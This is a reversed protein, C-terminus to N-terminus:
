RQVALVSVDADTPVQQWNNPDDWVYLAGTSVRIRLDDVSSTGVLSTVSAFPALTVEIGGLQQTAVQDSDPGRVLVAVDGDGMWTADLGAGSTRSLDVPYQAGTLGKPAGDADREIGAVYARAGAPDDLLVLLRTGDPSVQITTVAGSGLDADLRYTRKGNSVQLGSTDNTPVSYVWGQQDLTPAVLDSRTDVPKAGSPTVIAVTRSGTRVAAIKQRLSATIASPRTAAIRPGLTREESFTGASSLTGFKGGALVYAETGLQEAVARAQPVVLSNVVLRLAAPTPLGLTQALQQQM